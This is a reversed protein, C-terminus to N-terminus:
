KFFFLNELPVRSSKNDEIESTEPLFTKSIELLQILFIPNGYTVTWTKSLPSTLNVCFLNREAPSAVSDSSWVNHDMGRCIDVPISSESRLVKVNFWLSNTIGCNAM